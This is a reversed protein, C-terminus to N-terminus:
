FKKLTEYMMEYTTDLFANQSVIDQLGYDNSNYEEETLLAGAEWVAHTTSGTCPAVDDSSYFSGSLNIRNLNLNHTIDSVERIEYKYKDQTVEIIKEKKPRPFEWINAHSIGEGKNIGISVTATGKLTNLKILIIGRPNNSSFENILISKEDCDSKSFHRQYDTFSELSAGIYIEDAFSFQTFLIALFTYFYKM